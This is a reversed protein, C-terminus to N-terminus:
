YGVAVPCLVYVLCIQDLNSPRKQGAWGGAVREAQKGMETRKSGTNCPGPEGFMIRLRAPKNRIAPYTMCFLYYYIIKRRVCWVDKVHLLLFFFVKKGVERQKERWGDSRVKRGAWRDLLDVKRARKKEWCSLRPADAKKSELGSWARGGFSWMACKEEQLRLFIQVQIQSNSISLSSFRFLPFLLWPFSSFRKSPGVM